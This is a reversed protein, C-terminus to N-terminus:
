RRITSCLLVSPFLDWVMWDRWDDLSRIGIWYQGVPTKQHWCHSRYAVRDVTLSVASAEHETNGCFDNRRDISRWLTLIAKSAVFRVKSSIRSLYSHVAGCAHEGVLAVSSG